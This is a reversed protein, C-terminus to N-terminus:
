KKWYFTFRSDTEFGLKRYFDLDSIVYAREAGLARARSLAEFLIAKAAGKSRWVPVTCVPEVYAYDTGPLFWLCCCAAGEGAADVAALSLHRNFHRRPRAPAGSEREFEGRDDGHDFGQWLLWGLRKADATQDMEEIHLGEPLPASPVRRTERVLVTETQEAPSFGAAKLARIEKTNGDRAAIGLGAGDRLNEWAYRLIEPYLAEHGPLAACFAEGFYMDYIAAGAIKGEDRWLGMSGIATEDFEPHGVMWEFRAWNWNIHDRDLRNLEVLFDCVAEYDSERYQIFEM